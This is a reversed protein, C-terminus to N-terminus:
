PCIVPHGLLEAAFHLAAMMAFEAPRFDLGDARGARQELTEPFGAFAMDDPHAM